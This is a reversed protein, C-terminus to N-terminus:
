FNIEPPHVSVGEESQVLTSLESAMSIQMFCIIAPSINFYNYICLKRMYNYLQIYM